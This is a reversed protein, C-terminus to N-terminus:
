LKNIYDCFIDSYNFINYNSLCKAQAKKGMQNAIKANDILFKLKSFAEDATTYSLIEEDIEFYENLDSKEDTVLSCGVGTAEFLRMNCAFDGTHKNHYNLAIRYNSLRQLM